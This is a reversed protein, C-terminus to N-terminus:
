PHELHPSIHLSNQASSIAQIDNILESLQRWWDYDRLLGLDDPQMRAQLREYLRRAVIVSGKPTTIVMRPSRRQIM